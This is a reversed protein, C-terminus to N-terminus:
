RRTSASRVRRRRTSRGTACRTSSPGRPSRRTASDRQDGRAPPRGPRPRQARDRPALALVGARDPRRGGPLGEQHRPPGDPGEHGAQPLDRRRRLRRRHQDRQRVRARRLPRHPHRHAERREGGAAASRRHRLGRQDDPLRPGPGRDPHRTPHVDDHPRGLRHPARHDHRHEHGRARRDAAGQAARRHPRRGQRLRRDPLQHRAPRRPPRRRARRRGERDEDLPLAPRGRPLRAAPAARPPDPRPAPAVRAEEEGPTAAPGGGAYSCPSPPQGGSGRAERRAVPMVRTEDPRGGQQQAEVRQTADSPPNKSQSGYLWDYEPTGKEPVGSGQPREAM